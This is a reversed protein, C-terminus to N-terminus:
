NYVSFNDEEFVYKQYDIHIDDALGYVGDKELQFKGSNVFWMIYDDYTEFDEPAPTWDTAITGKELQIDKIIAEYYNQYFARNPQIYLNDQKDGSFYFHYEVNHWGESLEVKIGQHYDGTLQVGDLVTKIQTKGISHGGLKYVLGDLVKIKYSLIYNTKPEFLSRDIILGAKNDTKLNFIYRDRTVGGSWISIKDLPLLNRGGVEIGDVKKNFRERDKDTILSGAEANYKTDHLEKTTYISEAFPLGVTVFNLEAKGYTKFQEFNFSDAIRVKYRKGGVLVNDTGDEYEAKQGFDVFKYALNKARRLEQIYLYGSPYFIDFLKYRLLPYDLLDVSKFVIPVSISRRGISVGNDVGGAVGGIEEHNDTFEVSSVVFDKVIIGLDSLKIKEGDKEVIM